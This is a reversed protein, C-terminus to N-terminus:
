QQANINMISRKSHGDCISYEENIWHVFGYHLFFVINNMHIIVYVSIMRTLVIGIYSLM